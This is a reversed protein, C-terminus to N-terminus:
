ANGTSAPLTSAVSSTPATRRESRHGLRGTLGTLAAGALLVAGALGLVLQPPVGTLPISPVSPIVAAVPDGQRAPPKPEPSTAPGPAPHSRPAPAPRGPIPKGGASGSGPPTPPLSSEGPEPQQNEISLLSTTTCGANAATVTQGATLAGASWSLQFSGAPDAIVRGSRGAVSVLVRSGARFGMGHVQVVTGGAQASAAVACGIAPPYSLAQASGATFWWGTLLTLSALTWRLFACVLPRADARHGRAKRPTSKLGARSFM